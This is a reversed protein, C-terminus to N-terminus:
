KHRAEGNGTWLRHIVELMLRLLHGQIVLLLAQPSLLTLLMVEMLLRLLLMMLSGGIRGVLVLVVSHPPVDQRGRGPRGEGLRQGRM